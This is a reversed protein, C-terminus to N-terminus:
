AIFALPENAARLLQPSSTPAVAVAALNTPNTQLLKLSSVIFREIQSIRTINVSGDEHEESDCVPILM